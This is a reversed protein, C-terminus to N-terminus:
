KSSLQALIENPDIHLSDLASPELGSIELAGEKVGATGEFAIKDALSIYNLPDLAKIANVAGQILAKAITAATAADYKSMSGSGAMAGKLTSKVIAPFKTKEFNPQGAIAKLCEEAVTQAQLALTEAVAGTRSGAGLMLGKNAEEVFKALDVSELSKGGAIVMGASLSGLVTSVQAPTISDLPLGAVMGKLLPGVAELSLTKNQKAISESAVDSVFKVLAPDSFDAAKLKGSDPVFLKKLVKLSATGIVAVVKSQDAIKFKDDQVVGLLSSLFETTQDVLKTSAKDIISSKAKTILTSSNGASLGASKVLALQLDSAMIDTPSTSPKPETPNPGDDVAHKNAVVDKAQLPHTREPRESAKCGQFLLCSFSFLISVFFTKM